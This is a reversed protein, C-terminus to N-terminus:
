VFRLLPQFFFVGQAQRGDLESLLQIPLLSWPDGGPGCPYNKMVGQGWFDGNEFFIDVFHNSGAKKQISIGIRAELDDWFRKLVHNQGIKLSFNGFIVINLFGDSFFSFGHSRCSIEPPM